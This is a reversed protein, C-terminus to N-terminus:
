SVVRVVRISSYYSLLLMEVTEVSRGRQRWTEAFKRMEHNQHVARRVSEMLAITANNVDWLMPDSANDSANLVIVAHPLVPQNSSTELAAEAWRILQEIANEIVRPNKMVFVIVDSFTYLLRPYLHRVHYERSRTKDIKAWLLERESTHHQKRIHKVFSHTRKDKSDKKNRARAGMPEREGGDLGECDAYLIPNDGEFTKPDAYLHVDGSTPLDQHLNSGVVPVQTKVGDPAYLEILLRILSSKGAGTQGVFSVLSHYRVRRSRASKEAMLRAYHGYDQFVVDNDEDRGARFWSTDEDKVHLLAQEENDRDSQLTQFIKKAVAPDTKEHPLGTSKPTVRMRRKKHPPCNEWCEKCFITGDCPWCFYCEEASLKAEGCYCREEEAPEEKDFGLFPSMVSSPRRQRFPSSRSSPNNINTAAAPLTAVRADQPLVSGHPTFPQDTKLPVLSLKPPKPPVHPRESPVEIESIDNPLNSATNVQDQPMHRQMAARLKEQFLPHQQNVSESDLSAEVAMTWALEEDTRISKTSGAPSTWSTHRSIATSGSPTGSASRTQSAVSGSDVQILVDTATVPAESSFNEEGQVSNFSSSRRTKVTNGQQEMLTRNQADEDYLSKKEQTEDHWSIPSISSTRDQVDWSISRNKTTSETDLNPMPRTLAPLISEAQEKQLEEELRDIEIQHRRELAVRASKQRELKEIEARAREANLRERERAEAAEQEKTRRLSEEKERERHARPRGEGKRTTRKTETGVM